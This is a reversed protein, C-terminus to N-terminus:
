LDFTTRLIPHKDTLQQLAEAFRDASVIKFHYLFQDHYIPEEPRLRSYFVMSQQIKSLPYVDEYDEPLHKAQDPDETIRQKMQELMERGLELQRNPKHEQVLLGALVFFNDHIGVQEAGLVDQWIEALQLQAPTGPAEYVSGTHAAEPVPLARRDVKGNTNLPIGELEVFYSPIMYDPLQEALHARLETVPVAKESVLYACLYAQGQGDERALVVAERISAHALLRAEIEGCEIRYGRIKVQHDIRGLYELNGDPLWRALDGTRYMRTGPEFPNAVFKEATLEPNNLYGRALGDGAICLEGAVGVPQLQRNENVIYLQTNAIPKGIPVATEAFTSASDYYTVDVTAETPGYLNHLTAERGEMVKYFGTVHQPKLAEGSAFVRRM